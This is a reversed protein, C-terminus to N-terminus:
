SRNRRVRTSTTILKAKNINENWRDAIEQAEQLTAYTENLWMGRKVVGFSGKIKKARAINDIM